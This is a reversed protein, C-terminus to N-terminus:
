GETRKAKPALDRLVRGLGKTYADHDRWRTFDGINREVRLQFAWPEKADMIAPDLRIPFLVTQGLKREKELTIQVEREVWESRISNESLILLVKDQDQIADHLEDLTKGGIPMDDPAFYCRVGKNQLDVNIREVFEQDKSSYSIFVSFYQDAQSQLSSLDKILADPLGVGRLFSLPLSGSNALTRHDIISPGAHICTELGIAGDLNLNGFVTECFHAQTLETNNLITHTFNAEMLNCGVFRANTLNPGTLNAGVLSADTLNAGTLDVYTLSANSLNADALDAATFDSHDLFSNIFNADTAVTRMLAAQFLIAGSLNAGSLRCGALMARDLDPVIQVEDRWANWVDAGQKLRAVQEEDAM